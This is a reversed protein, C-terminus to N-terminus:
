ITKIVVAPNGGIICHSGWSKTVVAGAAVVSRNGIRVDSLIVVNCGVWVDDEIIVRRSVVPNYHIPLYKDDWSHNASHIATTHAIAVDNGISIEGALYCYPNISVNDGVEMMEPADFIVGTFIIVNSGCAKAINKFLVYRILIGVYLPCNRFLVLLIKNLKKPFISNISVLVRIIPEFKKFASGQAM